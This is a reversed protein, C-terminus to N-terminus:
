RIGRTQRNYYMIAKLAPFEGGCNPCRVKDKGKRGTISLTSNCFGCEGLTSDPAHTGFPHSLTAQTGSTGASELLSTFLGPNVPGSQTGRGAMFAGALLALGIFPLAGFKKLM